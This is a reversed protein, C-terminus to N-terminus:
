KKNTVLYYIGIGVGGLFDMVLDWMTDTIGYGKALQTDLNFLSDIAFEYIEWVVGGICAIGVIFLFMLLKTIKLKGANKNLIVNGINGLIIGSLIHMLMDWWEIKDYFDWMNGMVLSFICYLYVTSTITYEIKYFKHNIYDIIFTLVLVISGGATGVWHKIFITYVLSVVISIRLLWKAFLEIKRM